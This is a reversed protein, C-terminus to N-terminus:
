VVSAKRGHRAARWFGALVAYSEESMATFVVGMGAGEGQIRVVRAQAVIPSMTGPPRISLVFREGPGIAVESSLYAGTMSLDRLVFPVYQPSGHLFVAAPLQLRLRRTRRREIEPVPPHASQRPVAQM